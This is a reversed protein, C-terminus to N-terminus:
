LEKDAECPLKPLIYIYKKELNIIYINYIRVEYLDTSSM